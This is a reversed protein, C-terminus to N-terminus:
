PNTIQFENNEHPTHIFKSKAKNMNGLAIITQYMMSVIGIWNHMNKKAFFEGPIAIRYTSISIMILVLFSVALWTSNAFTFGIISLLGLGIPLLLKPPLALVMVKLFHDINGKLILEKLGSAWFRWFFQYQAQLWRSRQKSFSKGNRIKEDFVVASELYGIKIGAKTLNLELEKDFGGIATAHAMHEKFLSYDFAMGSGALRASFGLVRAGNGFINNNAIESIGDLFATSSTNNKAVRQGQIAVAGKNFSANIEHLFNKHLLNDADAVVAIDFNQDDLTSIAKNIAKAKTSKEFFVEIVKIDLESLKKLTDKKLQDAIVIVEFLQKPYSQYRAKKASAVIVNDEKYAPILVAIKKNPTTYISKEKKKFRSAVALSFPVLVALSFYILAVILIITIYNM